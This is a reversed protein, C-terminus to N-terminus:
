NMLKENVIRDFQYLNVRRSSLYALWKCIVRESYHAPVPLLTMFLNTKATMMPVNMAVVSSTLTVGLTSAFAHALSGDTQRYISESLFVRTQRTM